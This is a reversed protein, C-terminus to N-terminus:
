EVTMLALQPERQRRDESNADTLLNWLLQQPGSSDDPLKISRLVSPTWRICGKRHLANLYVAVTQASRLGFQQAIEGPTPAFEHTAIYRRIYRLIDAQRRTLLPM